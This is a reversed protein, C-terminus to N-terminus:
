GLGDQKLACVVESPFGLQSVYERKIKKFELAQLFPAVFVGRCGALLPPKLKYIEEYIEPDLYGKTLEKIKEMECMLDCATEDSIKEIDALM